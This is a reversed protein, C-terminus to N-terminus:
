QETDSHGSEARFEEEFEPFASHDSAVTSTIPPFADVGSSDLLDEADSTDGYLPVVRSQSVSEPDGSSTIAEKNSDQNM